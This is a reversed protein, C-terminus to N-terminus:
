LMRIDDLYAGDDVFIDGDSEVYFRVRLNTAGVFQDLPVVERLWPSYSNRYKRVPTWSTGGDTSVQVEMRDTRDLRNTFSYQVYYSLRPRGLGSLNFGTSTLTSVTGATYAVNPSDQWSNGGTHADGPTLGFGMGTWALNVSDCNDFLLTNSAPLTTFVSDSLGGANGAKDVARVVFYYQQGEDLSNIILKEPTGPASPRRSPSAQPVTYFNALTLPQTSVRMQTFRHRGLWGTTGPATFSLIVGNHATKEITLNSITAPPTADNLSM